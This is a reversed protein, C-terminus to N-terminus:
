VLICIKKDESQQATSRVLELSKLAGRGKNDDALLLYEQIVRMLNQLMLAYNESSQQVDDDHSRKRTLTNM